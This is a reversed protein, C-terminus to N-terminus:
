EHCTPNVRKNGTLLQQMLGKTQQRLAQLLETLRSIEGDALSLVRAIKEQEPLGPLHVRLELFDQKSLVRNRGAGGPSILGLSFIFRQQMVLYRLYDLHVRDPKARFTPFRHSVLHGNHEAPVIAIAGEWAFTINVILDNCDVEYLHEMSTKEPQELEKRFTGRGHSRIGLGTYPVTPKERERAIPTLFDAFLRKLWGPTDRFEPFRLSPVLRSPKDATM